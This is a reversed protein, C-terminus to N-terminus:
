QRLMLLQLGGIVLRFTEVFGWEISGIVLLVMIFGVLVSSIYIMEKSVLPQTRKEM